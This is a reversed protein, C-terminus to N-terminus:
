RPGAEAPRRLPCRASRPNVRRLPREERDLSARGVFLRQRVHLHHDHEPAQRDTRSGRDNDRDRRRRGPAGRAAGRAARDPGRGAAPFPPPHLTAQGLCRGRRYETDPAAPHGCLPRHTASGTRRVLTLSQRSGVNSAACQARLLPLLAQQRRSSQPPVGASRRRDCRNLLGGAYRRPLEADLPEGVALQLLPKGALVCVLSGLRTARLPRRQECRRLREPVQRRADDSLRGQPALGSADQFRRLRRLGRSSRLEDLSRTSHSYLGTFISARAPCCNPNATFSNAFRVGKGVLESSVTPMYRLTDWRQDDTVILVINPRGTQAEARDSSLWGSLTLLACLLLSGRVVLM